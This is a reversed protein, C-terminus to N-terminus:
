KYFGADKAYDKWNDYIDFSTIEMEILQNVIQLSTTANQVMIVVFPNNIKKISDPSVCEIGEIRTGWKKEDNDCVYSPTIWQKIKAINKEFCYGAGWLVVTMKDITGKFREPMSCGRSVKMVKSCGDITNIRRLAESEEESDTFVEFVISQETLSENIFEDVNEIYEEKNHASMYKFGLEQSYTKLLGTSKNGYHGRASIIDKESDSLVSAAHNYNIFETGCGNNIVMLRINNGIHRNGLVNMDYFFALDGVVGFYLKDKNVLSAGVLTSVCGDIGFGGTNAFCNIGKPLDFLNWARLSNLIGFHIESSRPLNRITQQAVWINSFPIEPIRTRIDNEKEKWQDIMRKGNNNIEYDCNLFGEFYDEESMEFVDTLKRFTDVIEGDPSIRWVKATKLHYYAGSINGMHILIDFENLVEQNEQTFIIGNTIGFRGNYNGTHDSIVIADYKECFKDVANLLKESWADHAGCFIGIKGIMNFNEFNINRHKKIVKAPILNRVSFDSNYATILNIHAPGKRNDLSTLIAKNANVTCIWESEEDGDNVLPLEVSIYSIDNQIRTRDVVQPVLHGIRGIPQSATVAIVPLKSYYAETLAPIYNRSATAGTCSLVVPEGSERAIGTAIYAASREDASSFVEFYSDSQVSQVFCINTTGPSIVIKKIGHEKLLYILIQVNREASYYHNNEFVQKIENMYKRIELKQPCRKECKGCSICEGAKGKKHTIAKYTARSGGLFTHYDGTLSTYTDLLHLVDPIPINMPCERMCYRCSTCNIRNLKKYKTRLIDFIKNDNTENEVLSLKEIIDRNQKVQSANVMGSLVVDINNLNNLFSFSLKVLNETSKEDRIITGGKLPEMVIIRKNHKIAVEYNQKSRIIPDEWDLWNIQLQVFDLEAHLTLIQDLLEPSDHYSIGIKKIYGEQKKKKLFEYGGINNHIDNVDATVAHLMYYDFYQLGCEKLESLFIREYDEYSSIGYYPMKDAVFFRDRQYREVVYQKIIGQSESQVYAPHSDFYCYHYKMYEDIADRVEDYNIRDTYNGFRMIGFGLEM